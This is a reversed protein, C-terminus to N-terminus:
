GSRQEYFSIELGFHSAREILGWRSRIVRLLEEHEYKLDQHSIGFKQGYLPYIHRKRYSNLFQKRAM